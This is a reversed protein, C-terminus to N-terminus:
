QCFKIMLIIKDEKALSTQIYRVSNKKLLDFRVFGTKGYNLIFINKQFYWITLNINQSFLKLAELRSAATQTHM